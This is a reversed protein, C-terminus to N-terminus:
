VAAWTVRSTADVGRRRQTDWANDMHGRTIRTYQGSSPSYVYWGMGLAVWREALTQASKVASAVMGTGMNGTSSIAQGNFPGLFIRGRRRPTVPDDGYFTLVAAVEHPLDNGFLRTPMTIDEGIYPVRPEADATDYVRVGCSVINNHLYAGIPALGVAPVAVYFADLWERITPGDTELDNVGSFTFTNVFRDSPLGSADQFSVQARYNPM